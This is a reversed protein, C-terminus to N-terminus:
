PLPFAPVSGDIDSEWQAQATANAGNQTDNEYDGQYKKMAAALADTAAKGDMGGAYATNAKNVLMAALNLHYQEHRLLDDTQDAVVSWSTEPKFILAFGNATARTGFGTQASHGDIRAAAVPFDSWALAKAVVPASTGNTSLARPNLLGAQAQIVPAAGRPGAISSAPMASPDSKRQLKLKDILPSFM